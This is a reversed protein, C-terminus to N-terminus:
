TGRCLQPVNGRCVEAVNQLGPRAEKPPSAYNKQFKRSLNLYFMQTGPTPAAAGLTVLLTINGTNEFAYNGITEAAQLTVTDLSTWNANLKFLRV